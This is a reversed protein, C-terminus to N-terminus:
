ADLGIEDLVREITADLIQPSDYRNANLAAKTEQVKKNAPGQLPGVIDKWRRFEDPSAGQDSNHTTRGAMAADKKM